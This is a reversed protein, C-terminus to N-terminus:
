SAVDVVKRKSTRGSVIKVSSRAVRFHKAIKGILEENAKGREPRATIGVTITNGNVEMIDRRFKIIVNYKMFGFRIYCGLM